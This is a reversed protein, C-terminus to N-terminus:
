LVKDIIGGAAHRNTKWCGNVAFAKRIDPLSKIM